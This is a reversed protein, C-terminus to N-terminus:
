DEQGSKTVGEGSIPNGGRARSVQTIQRNAEEVLARTNIKAENEAKQANAKKRLLEAIFSPM